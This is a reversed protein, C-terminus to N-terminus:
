HNLYDLKKISWPPLTLDLIGYRSECWVQYGPWKDNDLCHKYLGCLHEYEYRGQSIFQPSAEFINFAYPRKKEQAIFFFSWLMDKGEIKEILDAYFAAQIHYDLDAAHRTFGDLSADLCTKLDVVIRKKDNLHDPKIKVKIMGAETELEGMYGIENRGDALLMRVQPHKMLRDRMAKLREADDKSITQRDGIEMLQAGAWEKYKNTARPSKAGEGILIDCIVSDDFIFYEKDFREPELVFCHYASGFTLAETEKQEEEEKYHLPSIKLRKMASASLFDKARHYDAEEGQFETMNVSKIFTGEM